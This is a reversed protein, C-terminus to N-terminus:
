RGYWSENVGRLIAQAFSDGGNNSGHVLIVTELSPLATALPISIPTPVGLWINESLGDMPSVLVQTKLRAVQTDADLSLQM